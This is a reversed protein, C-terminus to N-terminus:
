ACLRGLIVMASANSAADNTSRFFGGVLCVGALSSQSAVSQSKSLALEFSSGPPHCADTM